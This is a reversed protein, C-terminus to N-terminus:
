YQPTPVTISGVRGTLNDRVIFRVQSHGAPMVLHERFALGYQEVTQLRNPSIHVDVDRAFRFPKVAKGSPRGVVVVKFSVHNRDEMDIALASRAITIEFGQKRDTAGDARGMWRVLVPLDTFDIPAQIAIDVDSVRETAPERDAAGVLFGSRARVQVNPRRVDLHLKHWGRKVNQGLYFGLVYYAASDREARDIAKSLDNTGYFARGGTLDALNQMQEISDRGAMPIISKRPFVGPRTDSGLPAFGAQGVILGRADVLYVAVNAENLLRMTDFFRVGCSNDSSLSVSATVWILSKRGPVGRLWHSITRLFEDAARENLCQQHEDIDRLGEILAQLAAVDSAMGAAAPPAIVSRQTEGEEAVRKGTVFQIAAVLASPDTAIDHIVHIGGRRVALLGVPTDPTRDKLLYRLVEQRASVQDLFNTSLMDLVIITVCRPAQTDSLINSFYGSPAAARQLPAKSSTITIEEFTAIKQEQGDASLTFNEQKLGTVPEGSKDSVLVPVLVLETRSKFTPTATQATAASSGIALLAPVLWAASNM